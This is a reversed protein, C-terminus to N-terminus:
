QFDIPNTPTPVTVTQDRVVQTKGGLKSNIGSTISGLTASINSSLVDTASSAATGITTDLKSIAAAPGAFVPSLVNSLANPINSILDSGKRLADYVGSKKVTPPTDGFMPAGDVQGANPTGSTGGARFLDTTGWSYLTTDAVTETKIADYNFTITAMSGINGEEHSLEDFEFLEIRPNIFTFRNSRPGGGNTLDVFIQEMVITQGYSGSYANGYPITSSASGWGRDIGYNGNAAGSRQETYARFFDNVSNGIEDLFTITLPEFMTNTLVRTRFNYYNVDVHNFKIKPKDCRHVFFYFTQDGPFGSFLVKFLFKFKPFHLNLDDAYHISEYSGAVGFKASNIPELLKNLQTAGPIPIKGLAPIRSGIGPIGGVTQPISNGLSFIQSPSLNQQQFADIEAQINPPSGVTLGLSNSIPDSM